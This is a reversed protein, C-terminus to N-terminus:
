QEDDISQGLPRLAGPVRRQTPVLEELTAAMNLVAADNHPGGILQVGVPMGDGDYGAPLSVAPMGIATVRSCSRMWDIYRDCAVGDVSAPYEVDAAFPSLQTVPAILLDFTDFFATARRWLEGLHTHAAAVEASSLTHGRAVEEQIPAKTEILRDGLSELQANGFAYLYARITEFAEDAGSFDPEALEVSWGLAAVRAVYDAIVGSVTQEVPLGGLTPSFAIRLPRDIHTLDVTIGYDRSLPDRADPVAIVSLLLALDAVTRGMAGSVSVATRSVGAGVSPVVGASSRFGVVGNWAAPNRLSGGMDSGDAISVMGTALAVAAGGSSGGATRGLDWPNRTVGYVPNFTHSGAGFEPTNTKGVSLAGAAKVRSVLLSDTPPRHEAYAPSGYTTVFDATETLDKHATVLGALAGVTGGAVRAEDVAAAQSQAVSFDAAVIANVAPNIAEIRDLHAALLERASVDRDQLLRLQERATLDCPSPSSAPSPSQPM